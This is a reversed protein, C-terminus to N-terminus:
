RHLPRRKCKSKPEAVPNEKLQQTCVKGRKWPPNIPLTCNIIGRFLATIKNKPNTGKKQKNTQEKRAAGGGAALRKAKAAAMASQGEADEKKRKQEKSTNLIGYM